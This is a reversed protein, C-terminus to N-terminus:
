FWCSTEMPGQQWWIQQQEALYTYAKPKRLNHTSTPTRDCFKLVYYSNGVHLIYTLIQILFLLHREDQYSLELWDRLWSLFHSLISITLYLYIKVRVNDVKVKCSVGEVKVRLYLDPFGVLKEWCPSGLRISSSVALTQSSLKGVYGCVALKILDPSNFITSLALSVCLFLSLFLFSLSLSLPALDKRSSVALRQTFALLGWVVLLENM